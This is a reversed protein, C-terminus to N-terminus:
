FNPGPFTNKDPKHKGKSEKCKSIKTVIEDM